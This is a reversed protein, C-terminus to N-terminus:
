LSFNVGLLITRAPPYPIYEIGFSPVGEVAKDTNVEPDFGKYGTIIFLNQGTLSINLNKIANGIDGIRYSISANALKMYDGDSLYRSSPTIANTRSEKIAGGLLSADINRTGLNSIPLVSNLTNNYIQHGFAGNANVNVTWNKYNFDTSIGLLVNPNPDGIFYSTNGKDEYTSLGNDDLGTFNRIYFANLPEGSALRQSFTNSLGQGSLAGTLVTPGNYDQLENRLYSANVGLNWNMDNNRLLATNVSLEVGSNILEGPLNIWYRSAPAPQISAFNFLLDSTNKHFFDISGFLKGRLINYDIGINLQKTSEWKLDPNAVNALALSGQSLTYQDQAAGAPFEQNGTLGFGARLKLQNFINSGQIFPEESIDWAAAFSPFYGYKNNEGFKSSGDARLTATITYKDNFSLIARGFFSQLESLPDAFSSPRLSTQSANQLINTYSIDDTSFDQGTISAGRWNFQQFEYGLLANLSFNQSVDKIYNLTHTYLQTNLENNGYLAIGRNQAGEVQTTRILQARRIGVQHNIGYLFRYELGEIIKYAISANALINSIKSQDDFEESMALPNGIDGGPRDLTGDAKRLPRTPNWLLAQSMLNGTAGADNSVPGIDEINHAAMINFDLSLKKSELFKYQGNLDVTYKKLGTKLIIGRQDYYGFGARYKGTESGGSVSVNYNQTPATRTIADMADESGGFDGTTLNYSKLADRYENADLVDYKRLLRSIGASANVDIRPPGSQGKRTTIMIVGNSGRSGYIATASADKLIDMSVIDFPNIFYLPDSAPSNGFGVNLSPRAIRGDIPVGDIVYLPQNGTRISNNGRIRVTTAAGPQGSANVVLVGAVKGQILQSPTTLAGKNFDKSSVTAVAGTLDKKRATGYGIVVIENLNAATAELAVVLSDGTITEERTGYGIATFVLTTASEPVSLAFKGEAGTTTGLNTGKASVSVGAVPSGDKTDTVRGTVTKNQAYAIQSLCLISMLLWKVSLLRQLNM